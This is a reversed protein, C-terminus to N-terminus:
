APVAEPVPAEVPAPTPVTIPEAPATLPEFQYERQDDGIDGAIITLHKM